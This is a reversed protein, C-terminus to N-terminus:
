QAPAVKVPVSPNGSRDIAVIEHGKKLVPRIQSTFSGDPATNTVMGIKTKTPYSIDYISIPVSSPQAKGSVVSAGETVPNLVPPETQPFGAAVMMLFALNVLALRRMSLQEEAM